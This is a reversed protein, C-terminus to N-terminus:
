EVGYRRQVWRSGSDGLGGVWDAGFFQCSLPSVGRLIIVCSFSLLIRAIPTWCRLLTESATSLVRTLRERERAKGEEFKKKLDRERESGGGGCM